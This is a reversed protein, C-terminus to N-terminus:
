IFLHECRKAKLLNILTERQVLTGSIGTCRVFTYLQAQTYKEGIFEAERDVGHCM